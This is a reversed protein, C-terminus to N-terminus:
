ASKQRAAEEAKKWLDGEEALAIEPCWDMIEAMKNENWRKAQHYGMAKPQYISESAFEKAEDVTPLPPPLPHNLEAIYKAFYQDEPLGGDERPHARITRLLTQIHRLSLGGNYGAGHIPAIPAGVFSYKLFDEPRLASNSCLMSDAQFMLAHTAPLLAEWLPPQTLFRSVADHTKFDIMSSSLPHLIISGQKIRKQIPGSSRLLAANDQGHFIHIPWEPGLYGSFYLIIPVLNRLPRGEVMVAVTRPQTANSHINAVSLTQSLYTRASTKLSIGGRVENYEVTSYVLLAMSMCALCMFALRLTRRTISRGAFRQSPPKDALFGSKKFSPLM